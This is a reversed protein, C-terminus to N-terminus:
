EQRWETEGREQIKGRHVNWGFMMNKLIEDWYNYGCHMSQKTIAHLRHIKGMNEETIKQTFLCNDWHWHLEISKKHLIPLYKPHTGYVRMYSLFLVFFFFAVFVFSVFIDWCPAWTPGTPGLHAGHQGWILSIFIFFFPGTKFAASATRLLDIGLRSCM